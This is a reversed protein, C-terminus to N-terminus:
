ICVITPVRFTTLDKSISQQEKASLPKASVLMVPANPHAHYVARTEPTMNNYWNPSYSLVFLDPVKGAPAITVDRVVLGKSFL